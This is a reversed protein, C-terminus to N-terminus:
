FRKTLNLFFRNNLDGNEVLGEYSAAMSYRKYINWLLSCEGIHHVTTTERNSYRGNFIRYHIGASLKGPIFEQDIRVGGMVGSLYSTGIWNSNLMVRMGDVPLSSFVAYASANRGPAPDDAKYRYAARIGLSVFKSIRYNVSAHLGQRTEEEILQDLFNKYTEYYIINNRLDYSVSFSFNQSARYRLLTYLSTLNFTGSAEEAVVEYLNLEASAFLFLHEILRNSHQYYLFRRDTNGGNRQEMFALTNQMPRDNLMVMHGIYGGFQLLSPNFSYDSHDPRSGAIGGITFNGAQQNVQLGDIAGVNSLHRNVKRGLLIKTQKNSEYSVNLGYIKLGNFLNQQVENWAGKRHNFSVHTEASFGTNGIGSARALLRYRMRLSNRDTEGSIGGYSSVSLKGSYDTGPQDKRKERDSQLKTDQSVDSKELTESVASVTSTNGKLGIEIKQPATFSPVKVQQGEEPEFDGIRECVLSLASRSKVVLVPFPNGADNMYLTDGESIKATGAYKVYVNRSSFYSITGTRDPDPGPDQASGPPLILLTVLAVLIGRIYVPDTKM